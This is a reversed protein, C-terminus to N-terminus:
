KEMGDENLYEGEFLLQGDYLYEKGKGNILIKKDYQSEKNFYEIESSVKGYSYDYRVLEEFKKKSPNHYDNGYYEKVKTHINGNIYEILLENKLGERGFSFGINKIISKGNWRKGNLYEGEFLIEKIQKEDYYYINNNYFYEKGKGNWKGNLYEGEFMIKGDKNYENGKGTWREGRFYEGEFIIEGKDNYEKGKGHRFRNLYEGEYKLIPM